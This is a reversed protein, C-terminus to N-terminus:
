GVEEALTFLEGAHRRVSAVLGDNAAVIRVRHLPSHLRAMDEDSLGSVGQWGVLNREGPLPHARILRLGVGTRPKGPLDILIDFPGAGGAPAKRYRTLYRAWAEEVRRRWSPDERLKLLSSHNPHREDLELASRYPRRELLREALVAPGGARPAEGGSGEAEKAKGSRGSDQLRTLLGADDLTTLEQPSLTGSEIADQVARLLMAAPVRLGAHGYVNYLMMYRCFVFAQLHGAGGEELALVARNKQGVVRLSHLMAELDLSAAYPSKTARADRVLADLTAADLSGTLLDRILYETPTLNRLPAGGAAGGALSEDGRAVLRFVNHPELGWLDRLVEAVEGEEVAGRLAADPAPVGPLGADELAAAYPPRGADLLLAAALAGRVERDELYAGSDIIRKLTLRTLHQVGVAHDFLTHRAQPFALATFGLPSMGKLRAVPGCGLLARVAKDVPVDGWVDDRV